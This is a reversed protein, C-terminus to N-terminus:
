QVVEVWLGRGNVHFRRDYMAEVAPYPLYFKGQYAATLSIRFVKKEGSKLDFYTMVRDDRIDQYIIVYKSKGIQDFLRTNGIEWGSPFVQTLALDKISQTLSSNSLTVEAAFDDGQALRTVDVTENATNIYRVSLKLNGSSPMEDGPAPTGSVFMRVYLASTGENKIKLKGQQQDADLKIEAIRDNTKFSAAKQTNVTYGARIQRDQIESGLFKSMALLSYATTQTSMWADSSLMKSLEEIVEFARQRDKVYVLAELIMAMDRERSGYTESFDPYGQVINELTSVLSNATSTQGILAYTAALRWAGVNSLDSQERLRNMAGTEPAKALALTFLRYAQVLDPQRFDYRTSTTVRNWSRAARQQFSLWQNKIGSPLTYGQAEAELMFHGAYTTAWEDTYPQGPWSTFSGDPLQFIVLRSLASQVNREARKVEENNLNIVSSLFLQPFATSVTQEFCGHPYQLLYQLRTSLNISPITSLEMSLKNTGEVGFLSYDLVAEEGAELLRFQSSIVQLNPNRVDVELNFIAKQSGSRAIVEIEGIGTKTEVQVDFFLTKDGTKDFTITKKPSGIKLLDNTKVEVDVSRIGKEMAFVTVPLKFTEGIGLVRPLTAVTMLAKRVPTSKQASGYAQKSAAVVMTRVSGVYPPLQVLVEKTQGPQITYPGLYKVVPRFRNAKGAEKKYILDDDGGISFIHEYRGGYAGIVHDYVDWTKVGLAERVFFRAWPDPTKYRTLNLLGDEVIAVTFTMERKNKESIKLTFTKEPELVAPIEIVPELRTTPDEVMIPLIGYLRIPLDNITQSHPQLLSIHVYANPIMERTINVEAVTENSRTNIRNLQIVKTGNEVSVIASGGEASPFTIKAVDGPQYKENDSTFTLIAAADPPARRARGAMEPWDFYWIAGTSHGSKPDSVKVFYRGWDSKPIHLKFNGKGTSVNVSSTLYPTSHHQRMYQALNHEYANWWWNWDLRYVSVELMRSSNPQGSADLSAVEVTYDRSTELMKYRNMEPAKLGAYTSFPSFLMEMGDISFDGGDEFVRTTFFASLMGAANNANVLDVSFSARGNENLNGEFVTKEEGEFTRMPDDFVFNAWNKFSTKTQAFKVKVDTKLNRATAGHLWEAFLSAKADSAAVIVERPFTLEVKLRNPKITEIKVRQTFEVGGVKVLATWNGTPADTSTPTIFPYFGNLGHTKTIKQVTQGMPNKLEFSIPHGAPLRDLQDALIFTLFLTDGPRWVGREGYIFGKLGQQVVDGSVDFNSVSLSLGEAVKLYGRQRDQKAIVLFPKGEPEVVVLGQNDSLKQAIVRNQFNRVEINVNQMPRATLIDSVLVTLKGDSGQKVIVGLNSALFNREVSRQKGYYAEHCPNERRQLYANYDYNEYYDNDYYDDYCDYYWYGSSKDYQKVENEFDTKDIVNLEAQSPMEEITTCPYVSHIQKFGLEIRYISGPDPKILEALDLAFSNWRGLNLPQDLGLCITKKLVLRGARKIEHNGDLQNVQLFYPINEEYLKVVRVEVARLNIAEFPIQLSGRGPWITGKGPLRVAPKAPEFVLDKKFTESLQKGIYNKVSSEIILEMTGELSTSPFITVMNRDITISFPNRTDLRILGTIQQSEDLPDTFRCVVQQTPFQIVNIDLLAFQNLEPISIKKEESVKAKMPSGDFSLLLTTAIESRIISDIEYQHTTGQMDHVWRIALSRNNLGAKLIKKVVEPEVYDTTRIFGRFQYYLNNNKSMSYLGISEDVFYQRVTQFSFEFSKQESIIAPLHHILFEAQYNTSYTLPNSPRFEITRNDIWFTEGEIGPNFAFVKKSLPSNPEIIDPYDEALVIRIKSQVSIMGSTFAAIAPHFVPVKNTLKQKCSTTVALFVALLLISKVLLTIPKM